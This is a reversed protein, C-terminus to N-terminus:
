DPKVLFLTKPTYYFIIQHECNSLFEARTKMSHLIGSHGKKGLAVASIGEISAVWRVLSESQHTNLCDM